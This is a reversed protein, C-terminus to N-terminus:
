MYIIKLQMHNLAKVQMTLELELFCEVSRKELSFHKCFQLNEADGEM